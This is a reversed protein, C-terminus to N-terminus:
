LDSKIISTINTICPSIPGQGINPMRRYITGKVNVENGHLNKREEESRIAKETNYVELYVETSDELVIIAYELPRKLSGKTPMPIAKYIGKLTVIQKDLQNIDSKSKVENQNMSEIEQKSSVIFHKVSIWLLFLIFLLFIVLLIINKSM